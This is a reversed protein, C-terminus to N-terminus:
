DPSYTSAEMDSGSAMAVHSAMMLDMRTLGPAIYTKGTASCACRAAVKCRSAMSTRLLVHSPREVTRVSCGPRVKVGM